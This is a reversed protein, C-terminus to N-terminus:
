AGCCKKYKKGSGCLCPDNRGIKPSERQYPEQYSGPYAPGFTEENRQRNYDRWFQHLRYPMTVLRAELDADDDIQLEAHDPNYGIDFLMLPTILHSTEANEVLPTWLPDIAVVSRFGAAWEKYKWDGLRNGNADVQYPRICQAADVDAVLPLFVNEPTLQPSRLRVASGIQRYRRLLLVLLQEQQQPDACIPLTTQGFIGALFDYAMPPEPGVACATLYGDAMEASMATSPLGAEDFLRFLADYDADTLAPLADLDRYTSLHWTFFDNHM